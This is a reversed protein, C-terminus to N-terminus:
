APDTGPHSSNQRFWNALANEGIAGEAAALITQVIDTQEPACVIGNLELFVIAVIYATRKNGDYFPHGRVLGYCYAAALTYLDPAPDDYHWKNLPRGLAAKLVNDDRVGASNGGFLSASRANIAVVIDESVWNPVPAEPM